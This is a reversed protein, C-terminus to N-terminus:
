RTQRVARSCGECFSYIDRRCTPIIKQRGSCLTGDSSGGKGQFIKLTLLLTLRIDPDELDMNLIEQLRQLRYAFTNRHMYLKKLAATPSMNNELYVQLITTYDTGKVRDHEILRLFGEPYLAQPIFKHLSCEIVHDLMSDEFKYYWQTSFNVKGLHMAINCQKYYYYLNKFDSFVTSISAKLMEDRLAPVFLRFVEDRSKGVKTLDVIFVIRERFIIYKAAPCAASLSTAVFNLLNTAVDNESPYVVFCFYDDFCDWGAQQLVATIQEEEIYTHELMKELIEM